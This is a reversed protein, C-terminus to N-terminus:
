RARRLWCVLAAGLLWLAAPLPTTAGGLSCGTQPLPAGALPDPTEASGVNPDDGTRLEDVDSVGDRDSDISERELQGLASELSSADNGEAGLNLLARGFPRVVTDNGGQDSSHCLTCSPPPAPLADIDFHREVLAPYAVSASAAETLSAHLLLAAVFLGNKM